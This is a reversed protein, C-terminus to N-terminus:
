HKQNIFEQISQRYIISNVHQVAKEAIPKYKERETELDLSDANPTSFADDFFCIAEEVTELNTPENNLYCELVNSYDIIRSGYYDPFYKEVFDWTTKLQTDPKIVEWHITILGEDVIVELEGNQAESEEIDQQIFAIDESHLNFSRTADKSTVRVKKATDGFNLYLNMTQMPIMKKLTYFGKEEGNLTVGDAWTLGICHNNSKCRILYERNNKIVEYLSNIWHVTEGKDVASKIEELTM